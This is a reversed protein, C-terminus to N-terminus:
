VWFLLIVSLTKKRSVPGKIKFTLLQRVSQLCLFSIIEVFSIMHNWSKELNKSMKLSKGNEMVKGYCDSNWSKELNGRSKWNKSM